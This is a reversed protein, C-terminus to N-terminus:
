TRTFPIFQTKGLTVTFSTPTVTVAGGEVQINLTETPPTGPVSGPLGLLRYVFEGNADTRAYPTGVPPSGGQYLEVKLDNVPLTASEIRGIVATEGIPVRFLRTPWLQKVKLFDSGKPATADALTVPLDVTFPEHNVYVGDLSDVTVDFTGSPVQGAPVRFRYTADVESRIATLKSGDTLTITVSLASRVPPTNPLPPQYFTDRFRYVVALEHAVRVPITALDSM